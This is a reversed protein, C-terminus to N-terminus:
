DGPKQKSLNAQVRDHTPLNKRCLASCSALQQSCSIAVSPCASGVRVEREKNVDLPPGPPEKPLLCGM